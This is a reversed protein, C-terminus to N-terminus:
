GLGMLFTGEVCVFGNCGGNYPVKELNKSRNVLSEDTRTETHFDDEVRRKRPPTGQQRVAGKLNRVCLCLLVIIFSKRKEGADAPTATTM